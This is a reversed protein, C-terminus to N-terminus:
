LFVRLVAIEGNKHVGSYGSFIYDEYFANYSKPLYVKRGDVLFNM